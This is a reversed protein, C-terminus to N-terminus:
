RKQHSVNLHQGNLSIKSLTATGTQSHIRRGTIRNTGWGQCAQTSEGVM